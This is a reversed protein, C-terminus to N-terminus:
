SVAEYTRAFDHARCRAFEGDSDRIVWDGPAVRRTGEDTMVFLDPPTEHFHVIDVSGAWARIARGSKISGDWRMAEVIVPKRRFRSPKTM